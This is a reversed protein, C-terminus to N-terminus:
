CHKDHTDLPRILALQMIILSAVTYDEHASPNRACTLVRESTATNIAQHTTQQSTDVLHVGFM